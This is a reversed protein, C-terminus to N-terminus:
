SRQRGDAVAHIDAFSECQQLLRLDGGRTLYLQAATAQENSPMDSAILLPLALAYRPVM